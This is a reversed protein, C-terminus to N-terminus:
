IAHFGFRTLFGMTQSGSAFGGGDHVSFWTAAVSFAAALTAGKKKDM